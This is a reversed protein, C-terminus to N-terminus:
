SLTSSCKSRLDLFFINANQLIIPVDSELKSLYCTKDPVLSATFTMSQTLIDLIVSVTIRIRGWWLNQNNMNLLSIVTRNNMASWDLPKNRVGGAWVYTCREIVSWDIWDHQSGPPGQESTTIMLTVIHKISLITTNSWSSLTTSLLLKSGQGTDMTINANIIQPQLKHPRKYLSINLVIKVRQNLRLIITLNNSININTNVDVDITHLPPTHLTTVRHYRLLVSRWSAKSGRASLRVQRYPSWLFHACSKEVGGGVMGGM